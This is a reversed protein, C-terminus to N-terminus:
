NLGHPTGSYVVSTHRLLQVGEHASKKGKVGFFSNVFLIHRNLQGLGQDHVQMVFHLVVLEDHLVKYTGDMDVNKKKTQSLM